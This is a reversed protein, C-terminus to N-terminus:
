ENWHFFKPFMKSLLFMGIDGIILGPKVQKGLTKSLVGELGREAFADLRGRLGNQRWGNAVRSRDAEQLQVRLMDRYYSKMDPYPGTYPEVVFPGSIINGNEDFALGGFSSAKAPLRFDQVMKLVKAIQSLIHRQSERSLSHHFESEIDIGPMHQELIWGNGSPGGTKNWAYVHPVIALDSLAQRALQMMAVTNEVKVAHNFM